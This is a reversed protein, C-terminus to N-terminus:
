RYTFYKDPSKQGNAYQELSLEVLSFTFGRVPKARM